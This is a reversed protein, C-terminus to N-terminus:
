LDGELGIVSFDLGFFVFGFIIPEILSILLGNNVGM